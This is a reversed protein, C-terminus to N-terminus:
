IDESEYGSDSEAVLFGESDSYDDEESESKYGLIWSRGSADHYCACKFLIAACCAFPSAILAFSWGMHPGWRIDDNAGAFSGCRDDSGDACRPNDNGYATPLFLYTIWSLCIFSSGLVGVTYLVTYCLGPFTWFNFIRNATAACSCICFLQFCCCGFLLWFLSLQSLYWLDDLELATYSEHRVDPGPVVEFIDNLYYLQIEFFNDRRQVYYWPFFLAILLCFYVGCTFCSGTLGCLISPWKIMVFSPYPILWRTFTKRSVSPTDAFLYTHLYGITLDFRSQWFEKDKIKEFIGKVDDQIGGM